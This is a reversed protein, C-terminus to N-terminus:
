FCVDHGCALDSYSCLSCLCACVCVSVECGREKKDGLVNRSKDEEEEKAKKNLEKM